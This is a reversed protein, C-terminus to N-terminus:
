KEKPPPELLILLSIIIKLIDVWHDKIWDLIGDWDIELGELEMQEYVYDQVVPLVAVKDGSEKRIRHPWRLTEMVKDYDDRSLTGARLARRAAIRYIPKFKLM